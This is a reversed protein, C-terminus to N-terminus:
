RGTLDIKGPGRVVQLGSSADRAAASIATALETAAQWDLAFQQTGFMTVFTLRVRAGAPGTVLEVRWTFGQPARPPRDGNHRPVADSEAV